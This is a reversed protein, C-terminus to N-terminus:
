PLDPTEGSMAILSSFAPHPVASVQNLICICHSSHCPGLVDELKDQFPPDLSLKFVQIRHTCGM